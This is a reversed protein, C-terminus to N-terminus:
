IDVVSDLVSAQAFFIWNLFLLILITLNRSVDSCLKFPLLYLAYPLMMTWQVWKLPFTIIVSTNDMYTYKCLFLMIVGDKGLKFFKVQIWMEFCYKRGLYTSPEKFPLLFNDWTGDVSFRTKQSIMNFLNVLAIQHEFIVLIM